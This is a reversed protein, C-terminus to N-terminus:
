ESLPINGDSFPFHITGNHTKISSDSSVWFDYDNEIKENEDLQIWLYVMDYDNNNHSFTERKKEVAPTWNSLKTTKHSSPAKENTSYHRDLKQNSRDCVTEKIVAGQKVIFIIWFAPISHQINEDHDAHTPVVLPRNLLPLEFSNSNKM